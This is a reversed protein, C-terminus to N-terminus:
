KKRKLGSVLLGKLIEKHRKKPYVPYMEATDVFNIGKENAFNLLDFSLNESVQEGFTMTGLCIKSVKLNSTGLYEYKM